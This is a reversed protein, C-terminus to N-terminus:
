FRWDRERMEVVTPKAGRAAAAVTAAVEQADAARAYGAGFGRALAEFDVPSLDVGEPEIQRDTMWHRIEGYGDNNWILLVVPVRAEAAAALEPLTYLAGGDGALAVVPAGPKALAAGIAAPLAYGLTGFGTATTFWRRPAPPRA